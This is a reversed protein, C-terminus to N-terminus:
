TLSSMYITFTPIISQFIVTHNNARTTDVRWRTDLSIGTIRKQCRTRLPRHTQEAASSAGIPLCLARAFDPTSRRRHRNWSVSTAGRRVFSMKSSLDVSTNKENSARNRRCRSLVLFSYVSSQVKPSSSISPRLVKWSSSFISHSLYSRFFKLPRKRSIVPGSSFRM